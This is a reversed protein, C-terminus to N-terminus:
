ARLFRLVRLSFKRATSRGNRKSREASRVRKAILQLLPSRPHSRVMSWKILTGSRSEGGRRLTQLRSKGKVM